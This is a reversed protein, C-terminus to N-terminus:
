LKLQDKTLFTIPVREQTSQTSIKQRVINTSKLPTNVFSESIPCNRSSSCKPICVKNLRKLTLCFKGADVVKNFQRIHRTLVTDNKHPHLINSISYRLPHFAFISHIYIVQRVRPFDAPPTTKFRKPLLQKSVM